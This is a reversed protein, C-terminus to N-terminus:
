SRGQVPIQPSIHVPEAPLGERDTHPLAIDFESVQLHSDKARRHLTKDQSSRKYRQNNLSSSAVVLCLVLAALLTERIKMKVIDLRELPPNTGPHKTAANTASLLM